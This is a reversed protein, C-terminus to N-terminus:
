FPFVPSHHRDPCKLGRNEVRICSGEREGEEETGWGKIIYVGNEGHKQVGSIEM